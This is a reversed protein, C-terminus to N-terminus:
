VLGRAKLEDKLYAYYVPAAVVGPLGFAAEMLVMALLLEWARANIQGGVIRANLFYELKHILVLFLLSGL